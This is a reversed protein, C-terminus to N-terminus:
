FEKCVQHVVIMDGSRPQRDKCVQCAFSGMGAKGLPFPFFFRRKRREKYVQHVQRVKHVSSTSGGGAGEKDLAPSLRVVSAEEQKIFKIFKVFKIFQLLRVAGQGAKDL